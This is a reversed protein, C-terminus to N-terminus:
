VFDAVQKGVPLTPAVFAVATSAQLNRRTRLFLPVSIQNANRDEEIKGTSHNWNRIGPELYTWLIVTIKSSVSIHKGAAYRTKHLLLAEINKSFKSVCYVMCVLETSHLRSSRDRAPWNVLHIGSIAVTCCGANLGFAFPNQGHSRMIRIPTSVICTWCLGCKNGDAYCQQHTSIAARIKSKSRRNAFLFKTQMRKIKSLFFATSERIFTKKPM